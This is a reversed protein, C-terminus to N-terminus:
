SSVVIMITHGIRIKDGKKLRQPAHIRRGNLWTGNTSGLDEVYWLGHAIQFRAHRSSAFEDSIALTGQRGTTFNAHLYPAARRGPHAPVPQSGSGRRDHKRNARGRRVRGSEM